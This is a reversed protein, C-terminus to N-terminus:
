PLANVLLKPQVTPLSIALDRQLIPCIDICLTLTICGEGGQGRPLRKLTHNYNAITRTATIYHPCNGIFLCHVCAESNQRYLLGFFVSVGHKSTATKRQYATLTKEEPPYGERLGRQHATIHTM